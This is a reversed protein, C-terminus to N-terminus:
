KGEGILSRISDFLANMNIPKTLYIEAGMEKGFEIDEPQDRSTTFIIPIDQRGRSSKLLRCFNYGNIIPMMVDLIILHIDQTMACQLGDSAENFCITTYGANKLSVDLLRTAVPDDDVILITKKSEPM